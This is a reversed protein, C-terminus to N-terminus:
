NSRRGDAVPAIFVDAASNGDRNVLNSALSTFAVFNGDASIASTYVSISTPDDAPSDNDGIATASRSILSTTGDTLDHVFVDRKGNTDGTVLNSASSAFSIRKGDGSISPDSSVDNGFVGASNGSVLFTTSADVDRVFVDQKNNTDAAATLDTSYSTFAVYKVM